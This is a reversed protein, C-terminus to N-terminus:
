ATARKKAVRIKIRKKGPKITIRPAITELVTRQIGEIRVVQNGELVVRPRGAWRARESAADLGRLADAAIDDDVDAAETM